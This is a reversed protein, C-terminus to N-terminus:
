TDRVILANGDPRPVISISLPNSRTQRDPTQYGLLWKYAEYFYAMQLSNRPQPYTSHEAMQRAPLPLKQSDFRRCHKKPNVPADQLLDKIKETTQKVRIGDSLSLRFLQRRMSAEEFIFSIDPSGLYKELLISWALFLEVTTWRDYHLNNAQNGSSNCVEM